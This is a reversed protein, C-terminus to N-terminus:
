NTKIVKLNGMDEFSDTYYITYYLQMGPSSLAVTVDTNELAVFRLTLKGTLIFLM